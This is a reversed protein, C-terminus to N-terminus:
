KKLIEAVKSLLVNPKIPKTLLITNEGLDGLSAIFDNAYGSVFLCEISADIQRIEDFAAKGSKRPMVVDLIVLKIEDKHATFKDVAEQGDAALIVTYGIKTLLKDM